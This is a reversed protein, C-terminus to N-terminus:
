PWIVLFVKSFLLWTAVGGVVAVALATVAERKTRGSLAFGLVALYAVTPAVFGIQAFALVLAYVCTWLYLGVALWPRARFDQPAGLGQIISTRARGTSLGLALRGLLVLALAGLLGSVMLPFAGPGLPDFLSPPLEWASAFVVGAVVLMVLGFAADARASGGM